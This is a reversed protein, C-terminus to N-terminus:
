PRKRNSFSGTWPSTRRLVSRATNSSTDRAFLIPGKSPGRISWRATVTCAEARPVKFCSKSLAPQGASSRAAYTSPLGCAMARFEPSTSAGPLAHDSRGKWFWATTFKQAAPEPTTTKGQRVPFVSTPAAAPHIRM